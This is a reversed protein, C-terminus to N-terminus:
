VWYYNFYVCHAAVRHLKAFCFIRQHHLVPRDLRNRIDAFEDAAVFVCKRGHKAVFVGAFAWKCYQWLFEWNPFKKCVFTGNDHRPSQRYKRRAGGSWGTNNYQHNGTTIKAFKKIRVESATAYICLIRLFSRFIVYIAYFNFTAAGFCVFIFINAEPSKRRPNQVWALTAVDALISDYNITHWFGGFVSIAHVTGSPLVGALIRQKQVM